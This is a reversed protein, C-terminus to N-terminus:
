IAASSFVPGNAEGYGSEHAAPFEDSVEQERKADLQEQSWRRLDRGWEWWGVVAVILAKNDGAKRVARKLPDPVSPWLADLLPGIMGDADPIDAPVDRADCDVISAVFHSSSWEVGSAAAAISIERAARPMGGRRGSSSSERTGCKHSRLAGAATVTLTKGCDPCDAKGGPEFFTSPSDNTTVGVVTLIPADKM